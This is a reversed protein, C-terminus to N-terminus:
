PVVYLAIALLHCSAGGLVFLHWLAHAYPLRKWAYFLTGLSYVVGGVVLLVFGGTELVHYLEYSVLLALWGMGLYTTLALRKFRNIWVAKFIIGILALAWILVLMLQALLSNHLSIVLFPTYSGAILLYISCHDLRKFLAKTPLHHLAHYLTSMLMAIILSAGYVALAAIGWGNVDGIAKVILLPLGVLAAAVGLGHTISNAVEEGISYLNSSRSM